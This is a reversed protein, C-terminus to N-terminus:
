HSLSPRIHNASGFTHEILVTIPEAPKRRGIAQGMGCNFGHELIALMLEPKGGPTADAKVIRMTDANETETRLDRFAPTLDRLNYLVPSTIYPDPIRRVIELLYFFANTTKIALVKCQYGGLRVKIDVVTEDDVLVVVSVQPKAADIAQEAIIPLLESSHM